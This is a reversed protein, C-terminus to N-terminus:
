NRPLSSANNILQNYARRLAVLSYHNQLRRHSQIGMEERLKPQLILEKLKHALVAYDGVPFVFGNGGHKVLLANDGVDTALIPLGYAMAELISNSTGEFLSTSLYIHAGRLYDEKNEPKIVVSVQRTLDLTRIATRIEQELKGYGIITYHLDIEDDLLKNVLYHFARLATSHDKQPVFRAITILNTTGSNSSKHIYGNVEIGNPIVYSKSEKFGKRILSQAGSYNNFITGSLLHNHLLRQVVFKVPSLVCNRIGGLICPVGAMKGALAGYFNASALYCFLIRIRQGRLLATLQFLKQLPHGELITLALGERQVLALYEKESLEGRLVVMRIDHDNKLAKALLLGQKEAGGLDLSEIFICIRQKLKNM